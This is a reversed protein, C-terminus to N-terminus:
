KRHKFQITSYWLVAFLLGYAQLPFFFFFFFCFLFWNSNIAAVRQLTCHNRCGGATCTVLLTLNQSNCFSSRSFSKLGPAQLWKFMELSILKSESRNKDKGTCFIKMSQIEIIHLCSIIVPQMVYCFQRYLMSM